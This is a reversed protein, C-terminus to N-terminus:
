IAGSSFHSCVHTLFTEKPQLIMSNDLSNLSIIQSFLLSLFYVYISKQKREELLSSILLYSDHSILLFYM